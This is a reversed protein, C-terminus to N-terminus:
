QASVLRYLRLLFIFLTPTDACSLLSASNILNWYCGCFPGFCQAWGVAKYLRKSFAKPRLSWLLCPLFSFFSFFRVFIFFSLFNSLSIISRPATFATHSFYSLLFSHVFFVLFCFSLPFFFPFSFLLSINFFYYILLNLIYILIERCQGRLINDASLHCRATQYFIVSTESWRVSEM